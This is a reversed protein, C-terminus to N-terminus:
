CCCCIDPDGVRPRAPVGDLTLENPRGAAGGLVGRVDAMSVDAEELRGATPEGKDVM